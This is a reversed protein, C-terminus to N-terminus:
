VVVDKMLALWPIKKALVHQLAAKDLSPEAVLKKL